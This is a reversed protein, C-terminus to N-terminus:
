FEDKRSRQTNKADLWAQNMAWELQSKLSEAIGVSLESQQYKIQEESLAEKMEPPICDLFKQATQNAIEQALQNIEAQREPLPYPIIKPEIKPEVELPSKEGRRRRRGREEPPIEALEEDVSSTLNQNKLDRRRTRRREVRDTNQESTKPM